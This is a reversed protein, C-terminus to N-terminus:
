AAAGLLARVLKGGGPLPKCDWKGLGAIMQLGRGTESIDASAQQVPTGPAQDYASILLCERNTFLSLQILPLRGNIYVPQHNADTAANVANTVLESAILEATDAYGPMQWLRLALRVHIRAVRPATPLAGIPTLMYWLPWRPIPQRTDPPAATAIASM